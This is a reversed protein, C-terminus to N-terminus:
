TLSKSPDKHGENLIKDMKKWPKPKEEMTNRAKMTQETSEEQSRKENQQLNNTTEQGFNISDEQLPKSVTKREKGLKAWDEQCQQETVHSQNEMKTLQSMTMRLKAIKRNFFDKLYNLGSPNKNRYDRSAKAIKTTQLQQQQTECHSPMVITIKEQCQAVDITLKDISASM